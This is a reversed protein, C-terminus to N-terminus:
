GKVMGLIRERALALTMRPVDKVFPHRHVNKFFVWYRLRQFKRYVKLIEERSMTESVIIAKRYHKSFHVADLSAWDEFDKQILGKGAAEAWVPTGPLPTMVYVNFNRLPVSRIFDYTAMMEERTEDPSGIIFAANPTIGNRALLEVASRNAEVSINGGKLYKLVRQHGSELGLAVSVVNLDKLLRAMDDDVLNARASCSFSVKGLLGEADLIDRLEKVRKRNVIFLDDYFSIIKAGYDYYLEKIEEAVYSASAFRTKTWYRSSACFVCRYPCGRSTFMSLHSGRVNLLERAPRPIEDLDDILPRRETFKLRGDEWYIIGKISACSEPDFRGTRDYLEIVEAFTEEGEHLAGIDMEKTFSDPLLSIHIGGIVVPIGKGKCFAAYRKVIGYNSSFCSIGVIDPRFEEVAEEIDRNIVKFEHTDAGLKKRAYSVLYGLGLQPYRTESEMHPNIASILLIRM